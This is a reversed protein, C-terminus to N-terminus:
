GGSWCDDISGELAETGDGSLCCYSLRVACADVLFDDDWNKGIIRGIDM